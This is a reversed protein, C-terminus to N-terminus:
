WILDSLDTVLFYESYNESFIDAERRLDEDAAMHVWVDKEILGVEVTCTNTRKKNLLSDKHLLLGEGESIGGLEFSQLPVFYSEGVVADAAWVAQSMDIEEEWDQEQGKVEFDSDEPEEFNMCPECCVCYGCDCPNVLGCDCSNNREPVEIVETDEEDLFLPVEKSIKIEANGTFSVQPFPLFCEEFTEELNKPYPKRLILDSVDTQAMQVFDESSEKQFLYKSGKFYLKKQRTDHKIGKFGLSKLDRSAELILNKSWGNTNLWAAPYGRESLCTRWLFVLFLFPLHTGLVGLLYAWPLNYAYIVISSVMYPALFKIKRM